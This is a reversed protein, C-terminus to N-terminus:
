RMDDYELMTSDAFVLKNDEFGIICSYNEMLAKVHPISDQVTEVIVEQVRGQRCGGLVAVLSFFVVGIKM